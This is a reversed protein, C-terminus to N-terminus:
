RVLFVVTQTNCNQIRITLKCWAHSSLIVGVSVEVNTEVIYFDNM